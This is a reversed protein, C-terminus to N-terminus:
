RGMGFLVVRITKLIIRLDLFLSHHKIYWLDYQLKELADEVSAGYPYNVQAWGTLGPKVVHRLHYFPIVHEYDEVCKTWEARPGIFSMDGRLINWLQPLEDLRSKRLFGGVPTIRSDGIQTYKNGRDAGVRMTRFKLVTFAVGKAGIRKQSFLIPGVSTLKVAIATMLMFPLGILLGIAALVIDSLRKIRLSIPDHLLQFGHSLVVWGATLHLVPVKRLHLEWFETLDYIRIGALRALM